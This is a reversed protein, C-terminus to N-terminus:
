VWISSFIYCWQHNKIRNLSWEQYHSGKRPFGTCPTGLFLGSDRTMM